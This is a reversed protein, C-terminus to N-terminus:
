YGHLLLWVTTTQLNSINKCKTFAKIGSYLWAVTAEASVLLVTHRMRKMSSVRTERQIFILSYMTLMYLDYSHLWHESICCIDLTYM